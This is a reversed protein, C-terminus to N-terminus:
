EIFLVADNLDELEFEPKLLNLVHRSFKIQTIARYINQAAPLMRYAAFGYLGLVPLIHSVDKGSMVLVIALIILCGYGVSEIIYLPIQGLTDRTAIHQAFVRSYSEFNNLYGQKADNIIVDKIGNLAEQCSQYREGNADMFSAGIYDLKKRVFYYIIFYIGGLICATSIALIPNYLLLVGVM